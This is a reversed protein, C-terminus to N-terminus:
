TLAPSPSRASAVQLSHQGHSIKESNSTEFPLYKLPITATGLSFLRRHALMPSMLRMYIRAAYLEAFFDRHWALTLSSLRASAVNFIRMLDGYQGHIDGCINVPCKLELLIPSNKMADMAKELILHIEYVEYNQRAAGAIFHKKIFEKMNFGAREKDTITYDIKIQLLNAQLAAANAAAEKAEKSLEGATSAPTESPKVADPQKVVSAE